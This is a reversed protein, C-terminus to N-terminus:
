HNPRKPLILGLLFDQAADESKVSNWADFAAAALGVEDLADKRSWTFGIDYDATHRSFQLQLFTECVSVLAPPPASGGRAAKSVSDCLDKMRGPDCRSALLSRQREVTWSRVAEEVLLHFLAYYATSVARRLSAQRPPDPDTQALHLAQELLDDALPM